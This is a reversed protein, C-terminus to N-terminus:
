HRPITRAWRLVRRDWLRFLPFRSPVNSIALESWVVRRVRIEPRSQSPTHPSVGSGVPDSWIVFTALPKLRPWDLALPLDLDALRLGGHLWVLRFRSRQAVFASLCSM